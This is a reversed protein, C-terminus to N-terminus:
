KEKARVELADQYWSLTQESLLIEKLFDFSERLNEYADVVAIIDKYTESDEVLKIMRVCDDVLEGFFRTVKQHM